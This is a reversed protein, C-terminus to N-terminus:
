ITKGKSPLNTVYERIQQKLLYETQDLFDRSVRTFKHFKGKACELAFEKCAKKNLLSKM